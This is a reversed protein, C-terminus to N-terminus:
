SSVGTAEDAFSYGKLAEEVTVLAGDRAASLYAADMIGMTRLNNRGSHPAERGADIAELFSLLSHGYTRPGHRVDDSDPFRDITPQEGTLQSYGVADGAMPGPRQVSVSGNDADVRMENTPLCKSMWSSTMQGVLGGEFQTLLSSFQEGPLSGAEDRRTVATVCIPASEAVWQMRDILHVSFIAMELRQQEARWQGPPQIRNQFSRHEIFRIRGTQPDETRSKLWQYEPFWRFNQGVALHCSASQAARVYGVAHWAVEAFPKEVLLHVGAELAPYIVEDRVGPPTLLVLVDVEGSSLLDKVNSFQGGIGYEDCFSRLVDARPDCAATVVAHDGVVSRYGAMHAHAIGGTGVLGIRYKTRM